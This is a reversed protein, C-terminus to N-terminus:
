NEGFVRDLMGKFYNCYVARTNLNSSPRAAAQTASAEARKSMRTAPSTSAAAVGLEVSQGLSKKAM